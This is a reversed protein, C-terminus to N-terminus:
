GNVFNWTPFLNDGCGRPTGACPFGPFICLRASSYVLEYVKSHSLHILDKVIKDLPFVVNQERDSRVYQIIKGRRM